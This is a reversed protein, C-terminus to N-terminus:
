SSRQSLPLIPRRGKWSAGMTDLSRDAATYGTIREFAPNVYTIPIDPQRLDSIVIGNDSAEIARNRLHLAATAQRQAARIGADRVEREIAPALRRLNGKVLYDHAGARMSEVANEDDTTGSVVIFPLDQGSQQLVRLAALASFSPLTYDAIVVDWQRQAIAQEMAPATDVRQLTPEFGSRQLKGEILVADNEDDEVLLVRLPKILTGAM